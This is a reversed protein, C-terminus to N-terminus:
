LDYAHSTVVALLLPAGVAMTGHNYNNTAQTRTCFLYDICHKNWEVEKNKM